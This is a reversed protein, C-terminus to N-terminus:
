ENFPPPLHCFGSAAAAIVPTIGRANAVRLASPTSEPDSFSFSPGSDNSDVSFHEESRKSDTCRPVFLTKSESQQQSSVSHRLWPREGARLLLGTIPISGSSCAFHLPTDGNANSVAALTGDAQVQPFSILHSMRM